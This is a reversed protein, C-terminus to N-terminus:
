GGILSWNYTRTRTPPLYNGGAIWPLVDRIDYGDLDVGSAYWGDFVRCNCPPFLKERDWFGCAPRNRPCCCRVEVEEIRGDPWEFIVKVTHSEFLPFLVCTPEHRAFFEIYPGPFLKEIQERFWMPKASHVIHGNRIHPLRKVQPINFAQRRPRKGYKGVLVLELEEYMSELDDASEACVGTRIPELNSGSYSGPGFWPTGDANVKEWVLGCTGYRVGWGTFYNM